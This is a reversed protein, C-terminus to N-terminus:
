LLNFSLLFLSFLCVVLLLLGDSLSFSFHSLFHLQGTFGRLVMAQHISEARKSSKVLTMGFLYAYTRYTHIDTKPTFARIKAARYLRRYEQEIIFIYRYSYLLIFVLKQPVPFTSLAYGIDSILSTALLAILSILIANTKLTILFAVHIGDSSLSFLNWVIVQNGGYTLPLTLWLFLTFSNILALRTLFRSPPIQGLILLLLAFLLALLLAEPSSLVAVTISFCLAALIKARADRKHLFSNGQAFHEELM